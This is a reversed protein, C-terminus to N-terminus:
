KAPTNVDQRIRDLVGNVFRTSDETDYARALEIAENIVMKPSADYSESSLEKIRLLECTAMRLLNRDLCNMRQITWNRAAGTILKDIDARRRCVETALDMAFDWIKKVLRAHEEQAKAAQAEDEPTTDDHSCSATDDTVLEDPSDPCIDGLLQGENEAIAMFDDIFDEDARWYNHIDCSFLFQMALRRGPRRFEKACLTGPITSDQSM